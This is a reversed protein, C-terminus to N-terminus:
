RRSSASTALSLIPKLYEHSVELAKIFSFYRSKLQDEYYWLMLKKDRADRNGSTLEEIQALPHQHFKKLKREDPLLDSLFLDKLTDIFPSFPM